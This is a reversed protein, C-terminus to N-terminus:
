YKIQESDNLDQYGTTILMDGAALGSLIEAKDQYIKGVTIQKKIAVKKGNVEQAVVVHAGNETKQITNVPIVIANKNQYDIVKFVCIMNPNYDNGSTLNAEITFTRNMPSIVKSTFNITSLITKNDLDPFILKVPNGQKIQSAYTEAVDAKAKLDSMNVLRFCPMGPAINQGIKLFVEDVTGNIPSKIRYMDLNEYLTALKQELSEKNNRASLYQVETGVQKEWLSKQKNYVDTVFSLNTKLDDIQRKVIEADLEALVQDKKVTAGSKVLVKIVPGMARASITTNQDGDVRGQVDIYHEFASTVIPTVMVYKMRENTKSSTDGLALIEEELTKIESVLEAQKSKLKELKEKKKEVTNADSCSALMGIGLVLMIGFVIKNM